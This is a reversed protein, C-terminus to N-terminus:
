YQLQPRDTAFIFILMIEKCIVQNSTYVPRYSPLPDDDSYDEEIARGEAQRTLPVVDLGPASSRPTVQHYHLPHKHQHHFFPPPNTTNMSQKCNDLAKSSGM